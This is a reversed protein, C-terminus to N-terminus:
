FLVVLCMHTMRMCLEVEISGVVAPTGSSQSAVLTLGLDAASVVISTERVQHSPLM